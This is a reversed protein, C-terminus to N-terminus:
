IATSGYWNIGQQDHAIHWYAPIGNRDAGKQAAKQSTYYVRQPDDDVQMGQNLLDALERRAKRSRGQNGLNAGKVSYVNPLQKVICNGKIKYSSDGQSKRIHQIKEKRKTTEKEAIVGVETVCEFKVISGGALREYHRQTSEPVGSLTELVARSTPRARNLSEIFCAWLVGLWGTSFLREPDELDIATRVTPAGFIRAARATGEYRYYKGSRDQVFIGLDVAQTIWRALTKYNVSMSELYLRLDEISVKGSGEPQDLNRAATWARFAGGAKSRKSALGILSYVKIGQM